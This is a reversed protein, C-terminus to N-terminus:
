RITIINSQGNKHNKLTLINSKLLMIRKDRGHLLLVRM